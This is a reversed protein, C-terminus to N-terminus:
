PLLSMKVRRLKGVQYRGDEGNQKLWYFNVKNTKFSLKIGAINKGQPPLPNLVTDLIFTINFRTEIYSIITSLEADEFNFEVLEQPDGNDWPTLEKPIIPTKQAAAAESESSPFIMESIPKSSFLTGFWPVFLSILTIKFIEKKM